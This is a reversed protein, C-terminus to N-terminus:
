RPHDPLSAPLPLDGHGLRHARDFPGCLHQADRTRYTPLIRVEVPLVLTIFILWFALTRGPFRFYVISFASIISIAIKGISISLAMILRNGMQEWLPPIGSSAMGSTLMTKYNSWIEHGPTLPILGSLFDTPGNTSAIFAVYIPFAVVLVGLILVLHALFNLFPRNEVM